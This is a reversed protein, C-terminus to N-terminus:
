LGTRQWRLGDLVQLRNSENWTHTGLLRPSWEPPIWNASREEFETPTLRIIENVQIAYGYSVSCDQTPRYLRGHRWLLNGASRSSRASCSIPSCPHLNWAGDLRESWFLLTEMFPQATTTFFYWHGNLFFPTTDVLGLGEVPSAVLEVEEPFRSFRYLDVRGVESSEPLLFLDGDAAMVCPYSLNYDRELIIKIDSCSGNELLEVCAIRGRSSGEPLDEFFLYDRGGTEWLFPDAAEMGGPISLERFGVLDVLGADTISSGTNPRIAVFWKTEKGHANWRLNASRTLKRVVFRMAEVNTPYHGIALSEIPGEPLGCLREQFQRGGRHFELCLGALIRLTAILPEEANLTLYIGLSTATEATRVVRGRLLSSEHWHITVTSTVENNAVEDWFPIVQNHKGLRVTFVGHKALDRLNIDPYTRDALWVLVGCGATRIRDVAESIPSEIVDTAIDGFPDFRARSASYLRETLWGPRSLALLPQESLTLLCIDIGPLHRLFSLLADVWPSPRGHGLVVGVRLPQAVSTGPKRFAILATSKDPLLTLPPEQRAKGKM